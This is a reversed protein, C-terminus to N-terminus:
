SANQLSYFNKRPVNMSQFSPSTSWNQSRSVRQMRQFHYFIFYTGPKYLQLQNCTFRICLTVFLTLQMAGLLLTLSVERNQNLPQQNRLKDRAPHKVDPVSFLIFAAEIKTCIEISLQIALILISMIVVMSFFFYFVFSIIIEKLCFLAHLALFLSGGHSHRNVTLM